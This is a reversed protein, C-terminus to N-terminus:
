VGGEGRYSFGAFLSSAVKEETNGWGWRQRRREDVLSGPDVDGDAIEDFYKTDTGDGDVSPVWPPTLDRADLAAWDITNFFPSRQVEEAGRPGSGLRAVPDRTLLGEILGQASPPMTDESIVL